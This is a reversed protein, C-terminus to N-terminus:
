IYSNYCFKGYRILNICLLFEISDKHGKVTFKLKKICLFIYLEFLKQGEFKAAFMLNGCQFCLVTFQVVSSFVVVVVSSSM